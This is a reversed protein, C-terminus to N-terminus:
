RVATVRWRGDRTALLLILTTRVRGRRITAAMELEPTTPDDAAHVGALRSGRPSRDRLYVRAYRRAVTRAEPPVPAGLDGAGQASAPAATSAGASTTTGDGSVITPRRHGTAPTTAAPALPGHPPAATRHPAHHHTPADGGVFTLV